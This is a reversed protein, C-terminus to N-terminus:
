QTKEYINGAEDKWRAGIPLLKEQNEPDYLTPLIGMQSFYGYQVEPSYGAVIGM